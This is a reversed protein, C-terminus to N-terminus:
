RVTLRERVQGRHTFQIGARALAVGPPRIWQLRPIEGIRGELGDFVLREQVEEQALLSAICFERKQIGAPVHHRRRLIEGVCGPFLIRRDHAGTDGPGKGPRDCGRDRSRGVAHEGGGDQRAPTRDRQQEAAREIDERRGGAREYEAEDVGSKGQQCRLTAAQRGVLPGPDTEGCRERRQQGDAKQNTAQVGPVAGQGQESRLDCGEAGRPYAQPLSSPKM